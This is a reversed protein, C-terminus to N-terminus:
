EMKLDVVANKAQTWQHMSGDYLKVNKNGLVESMLFWSGSGLHGSNCYTITNGDSKVGMQELLSLSKKPTIMKAPMPTTLLENPYAKASPIHGNAYVYSKRWTGLYLSIPRTDVLQTDSDKVADAVDATTALIEIREATATWNGKSAKTDKISVDRKDKIWQALGGNLIAMDDHGYFKMQWYLRTAYTMDIESHGKSVIVVASDQNVGTAQMLKQFDAKNVIMKQVKIGDVTKTKRLKKFNVLIAGPVHGGVKNLKAKGTEKDKKFEPDENFSLVDKRISLIVVKDKNAALWDTEVLPGPLAASTVTSSWVLALSTVMLIMIKNM